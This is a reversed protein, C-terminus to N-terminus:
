VEDLLPDSREGADAVPPLGARRSRRRDEVRRRFRRRAAVERDKPGPILHADVEVLALRVDQDRIILDLLAAVVEGRHAAVFIRGMLRWPLFDLAPDDILEAIAGHQLRRYFVLLDRLGRANRAVIVSPRAIGSM